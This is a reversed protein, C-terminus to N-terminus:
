RGGLARYIRLHQQAEDSKGEREAVIARLKYLRPFYLGNFANMTDSGPVPNMRLLPAAEEVKGTEILAWALEIAASRDGNTGARTEMKQLLPIAEAFHRDLLLAYALAVDRLAPVRGFIAEARSAWEAPAAAPMVALRALAVTGATAPTALAAAQAAYRASAARDESLASWVALLSYSRARLDQQPQRAAEADLAAIAQERRGSIWLWEATRAKDGLIEDAGTVDGTMLRAMAAKYLDLGNLFAPNQQHAARYYGEAEKLRGALLHVDGLSDLPNPDAPRLAQYQKLANVAGENDGAYAAFYGLQNWLPADSPEIALARRYAGATQQYQRRGAATDGVLKWATPDLPTARALMQAAHEAAEGDGRLTAALIELRLRVTDQIANGRAAAAQLAAGAGARDQQQLASEVLLVYGPGFNPDAAVSEEAARRIGAPDSSELGRVYAELASASSTAFPKADPSIQRALATAAGVVDSEDVSVEIPGLALSRAGPEEITVRVRLRGGTIAYEGYGVRNAGAALALPAEASIGPAQIPRAGFAANLAHLRSSPMAYVSGSQSLESTIVEALARGIWDARAEPSLNEFRTIALRQIGPAQRRGCAGGVACLILSAAAVTRRGSSFV